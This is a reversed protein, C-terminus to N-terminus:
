DVPSRTARARETCHGCVHGSEHLRRAALPTRLKERQIRRRMGGHVHKQVADAARIGTGQSEKDPDVIDDRFVIDITPAGQTVRNREVAGTATVVTYQRREAGHRLRRSDYQRSHTEKRQGTDGPTPPYSVQLNPRTCLPRTCLSRPLQRQIAAGSKAEHNRVRITAAAVSTLPAKQRATTAHICCRNCPEHLLQAAAAYIVSGPILSGKTGQTRKTVQHHPSRSAVERFASIEPRNRRMPRRFATSPPLRRQGSGPPM